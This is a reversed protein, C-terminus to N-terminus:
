GSLCLRLPLSAPASSSFRASSASVSFVAAPHRCTQTLGRGSALPLRLIENAVTELRALPDNLSSGDAFLPGNNSRTPAGSVTLEFFCLRRRADAGGAGSHPDNPTKGTSISSSTRDRHPARSSPTMVHTLLNKLSVPITSRTAFLLTSACGLASPTKTSLYSPTLFLKAFVNRKASLASTASRVAAPTSRPANWVATSPTGPVDGTPGM